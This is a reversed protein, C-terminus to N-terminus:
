CSVQECGEKIAQIMLNLDDAPIAGAFRLLEKGPVGVPKTIALFRAFDLVQQQQQSNLKNLHNM